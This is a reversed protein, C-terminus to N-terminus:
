AAEPEADDSRAPPQRREAEAKLAERISRLSSRHPMSGGPQGRLSRMWRSYTAGAIECRKCLDAQPVALFRRLADLEALDMRDIQAIEIQM